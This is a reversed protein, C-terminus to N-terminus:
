LPRFPSAYADIRSIIMRYTHSGPSICLADTEAPIEPWSSRSGQTRRYALHEVSVLLDEHGQLAIPGSVREDKRTSLKTARKEEIDRQEDSNLDDRPGLADLPPVVHASSRPCCGRRRETLM